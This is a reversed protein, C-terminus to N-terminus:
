KNMLDQKWEDGVKSLTMTEDDETGDKFVIHVKVTANDGDITSETIKYSKIGGKGAIEPAVKEEVMAAIMHRDSDTDLNFTEAYGEYDGKQLASIAKKAVAEPGNSSSCSAALIASLAIALFLVLKKM